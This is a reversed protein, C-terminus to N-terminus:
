QSYFDNQNDCQLMIYCQKRLMQFMSLKQIFLPLWLIKRLKFDDYIDKRDMQIGINHIM